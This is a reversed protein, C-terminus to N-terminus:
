TEKLTRTTRFSTNPGLAAENSLLDERTMAAAVADFDDSMQVLTEGNSDKKDKLDVLYKPYNRVYARKRLRASLLSSWLLRPAQETAKKSM